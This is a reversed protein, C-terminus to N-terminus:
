KGHSAKYAPVQRQWAGCGETSSMQEIGAQSLILAHLKVSSILVQCPIFSQVWWQRNSILIEPLVVNISFKRFSLFNMGEDLMTSEIAPTPWVVLSDNIGNAHNQGGGWRVLSSLSFQCKKWGNVMPKWWATNFLFSQLVKYQNYKSQPQQFVNSMINWM